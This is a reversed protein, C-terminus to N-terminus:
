NRFPGGATKKMCNQYKVLYPVGALSGRLDSGIKVLWRTLVGARRRRMGTRGHPAKGAFDTDVDIDYRARLDNYVARKEAEIYQYRLMQAIAPRADEYTQPQEPHHEEVRFLAYRGQWEVPGLVDGAAADFVPEALSGLQKRTLFGLDGDPLQLM